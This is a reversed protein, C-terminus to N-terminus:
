TTFDDEEDEDEPWQTVETKADQEKVWTVAMGYLTYYNGRSSELLKCSAPKNKTEPTSTSALILVGDFHESLKVVADELIKQEPTM